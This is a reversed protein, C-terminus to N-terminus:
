TLPMAAVDVSGSARRSAVSASDRLVSGALPHQDDDVRVRRRHGVPQLVEDDVRQAAAVVDVRDVGLGAVVRGLQAALRRALAIVDDDREAAVPGDVLRGVAEGARVRRQAAQGAPARVDVAPHEPDRGVDDVRGLVQQLDGVVPARPADVDAHDVVALEQEGGADPEVRAHDLPDVGM